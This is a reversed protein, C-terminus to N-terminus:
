APVQSIFYQAIATVLPAVVVWFQSGPIYQDIILQAVAVLLLLGKGAIGQWAEGPLLGLVFQAVWTLGPM